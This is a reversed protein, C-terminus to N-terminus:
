FNAGEGRNPPPLQQAAVTETHNFTTTSCPTEDAQSADIAAAEKPPCWCIAGTEPDMRIPKSLVPRGTAPDLSWTPPPDTPDTEQGCTGCTPKTTPEDIGM